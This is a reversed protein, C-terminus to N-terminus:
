KVTFAYIKYHVPLGASCEVVEDAVAAIKCTLKALTRIYEETLADYIIGDSFVDDSVIIINECKSKLVLFDGYVKECVEESSRVGDDTFIENAVWVTLSEILVSAKEPIILGALDSYKEFTIFNKHERRARHLQVRRMMEDDYVKSVAVYIKHFSTLEELRREAYLSKGSRSAGSVLIIM